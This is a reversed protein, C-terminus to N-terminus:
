GVAPGRIRFRGSNNAAPDIDRTGQLNRAGALRIVDEAGGLDLALARQIGGAPLHNLLRDIAERERGASIMPNELHGPGNGIEVPQRPDPLLVEALRDTVTPEIAAILCRLYVAERM